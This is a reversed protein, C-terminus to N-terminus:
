TTRLKKKLEQNVHAPVFCNADGGLMVLEKVISSNLYSYKDHTMLFVTILDDALKRNVLAMQFEYEFDSVARLGRIIAGANQSRAYDVLLGNFSDVEVRDMEKVSESILGVRETKSFLPKKQSNLAVAVVVKDFLQRAREIIDLHGYTIPDFSGPYIAIKM